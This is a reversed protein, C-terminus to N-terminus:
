RAIMSAAGLVRAAEPSALDHASCGMCDRVDVAHFVPHQLLAACLQPYNCVAALHLATRGYEDVANLESSSLETLLIECSKLDALLIANHLESRRGAPRTCLTSALGLSSSSATSSNRVNPVSELARSATGSGLASAKARHLVSTRTPDVHAFDLITPSSGASRLPHLQQMRPPLSKLFGHRIDMPVGRYQLVANWLVQATISRPAVMKCVPQGENHVIVRVYHDDDHRNSDDPWAEVFRVEQGKRAQRRCQSAHYRQTQGGAGNTGPADPSSRSGRSGQM